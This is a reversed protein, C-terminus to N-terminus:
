SECPTGNWHRTCSLLPLYLLSAQCTASAVPIFRPPRSRIDIRSAGDVVHCSRTLSPHQRPEGYLVLDPPNTALEDPVVRRLAEMVEKDGAGAPFGVDIDSPQEEHRPPSNLVAVHVSM